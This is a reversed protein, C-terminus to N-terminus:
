TVWQLDCLAKLQPEHELCAFQPEQNELIAYAICLENHAEDVASFLSRGNAKVAHIASTFRNLLQHSSKFRDSASKFQTNFVEQVENAYLTNLWEIESDQLPKDPM